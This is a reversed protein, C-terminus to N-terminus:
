NVSGAVLTLLVTNHVVEGRQRGDLESYQLSLQHSGEISVHRGLRWALELNMRYVTAEFASGRAQFVGPGATVTLRRRLSHSLTATLGQATVPEPHGIVGTETQIYALAAEGRRFRHRIAAGLEPAVTRGSLRPGAKLELHARPTVERAWTLTLAHSTSAQGVSTFRHRGYNVRLADAPGVQRELRAAAVRMASTVGGVIEHQTFGHEVVARTRAGLRQSLSQTTSFRHALSRRLELGMLELGEIVNFEGPTHTEAYSVTATAELGGGPSWQADLGAEQRARLTSLESHRSFAETDRGYRALLSVRPSVYAAGLRPSLRSVVDRRKEDPVTFVNDDYSETLAVSVSMDFRQQATAAGPPLSVAGLAVCLSLAATRRSPM